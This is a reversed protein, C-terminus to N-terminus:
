LMGLYGGLAASLGAVCATGTAWWAATIASTRAHEAQIVAKRRATEYRRRVETEMVDARAMAADRASALRDILRDAQEPSLNPYSQVLARLSDRNLQGLRNRVIAPTDGPHSFIARADASLAEYSFEPRHLSELWLHLQRRINEPMPGSEPAPAEMAVAASGRVGARSRMPTPSQTAQLTERALRRLTSIEEPTWRRPHSEVYGTVVQNMDEETISAREQPTMDSFMTSLERRIREPDFLTSTLKDLYQRLRSSTEEQQSLDGSVAERITEILNQGLGQAQRAGAPVLGVLGRMAGLSSQLGQTMTNMIVGFLSRMSRMEVWTLVAFFVSWIVLGLIAGLWTPGVLSLNTALLTALFLAISTSLLTWLGIRTTIPHHAPAGDELEEVAAEGAAANERGAARSAAFADLPEAAALAEAQREAARKKLNPTMSLGTALSLATLVSQFGLALIVGALVSLFFQPTLLITQGTIVTDQAFVTGPLALALLGLAVPSLRSRLRHTSM